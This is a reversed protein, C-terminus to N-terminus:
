SYLVQGLINLLHPFVTNYFNVPISITLSDVTDAVLTRYRAGDFDGHANRLLATKLADRQAKYFFNTDCM